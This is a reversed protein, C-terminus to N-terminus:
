VATIYQVINPIWCSLICFVYIKLTSCILYCHLASLRSVFYVAASFVPNPRIIRIVTFSLCNWYVISLLHMFFFLIVLVNLFSDEDHLHHFCVHCLLLCKQFLAHTHVIYFSMWWFLSDEIVLYFIEQEALWKCARTSRPSRRYPWLYNWKQLASQSLSAKGWTFDSGSLKEFCCCWVICALAHAFWSHLITSTCNNWIVKLYLKSDRVAM